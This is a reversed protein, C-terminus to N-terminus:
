SIENSSSTSCNLKQSKSWLPHPVPFTTHNHNTRRYNSIPHPRPSHSFQINLSVSPNRHKGTCVGPLSSSKIFNDYKHDQQKLDWDRDSIIVSRDIASMNNWDIAGSLTCYNGTPRGNCLDRDNSWLRNWIRELLLWGVVSSILTHFIKIGGDRRGICAIRPVHGSILM